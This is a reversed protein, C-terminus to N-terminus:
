KLFDMLFYLLYIKGFAPMYIGDRFADFFDIDQPKPPTKPVFKTKYFSKFRLHRFVPRLRAFFACFHEFFGKFKNSM